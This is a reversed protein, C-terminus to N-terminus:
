QMRQRDLMFVLKKDLKSHRDFRINVGKSRAQGKLLVIVECIIDVIQRASTEIKREAFQNLSMMHGDILDMALHKCIKQAVILDLVYKRL